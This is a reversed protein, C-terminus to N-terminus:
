RVPRLKVWLARKEWLTFTKQDLWNGTRAKDLELDFNFLLRALILRM